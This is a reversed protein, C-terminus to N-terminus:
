CVEMINTIEQVKGTNYYRPSHDVDRCYDKNMTKKVTSSPGGDGEM